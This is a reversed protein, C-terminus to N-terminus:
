GQTKFQQLITRLQNALERAETPTPLRNTDRLTSLAAISTLWGPVMVLAVNQITAILHLPQEIQATRLASGSRIQAVTQTLSMSRDTFRQALAPADQGLHDALFLAALATAEAADGLAEIRRAHQDLTERFGLLDGFAASMLGILHDLEGRARALEDPSDIRSNAGKFLGAILGTDAVGCAAEIDIAGLIDIMRGVHASVNRLVDSQTLDLTQSVLATYDQQLKHGWLVVNRESLRAPAVTQVLRLAEDAVPPRLGPSLRRLDAPTVAIREPAVGPIATPGISKREPAAPLDRPAPPPRQPKERAAVAGIVTPAPKGAERAAKGGVPGIVTPRLGRRDDPGDVQPPEDRGM